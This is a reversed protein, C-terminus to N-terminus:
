GAADDDGLGLADRLREILDEVTRLEKFDAASVVESVQEGEILFVCPLAAEPLGAYAEEVQDRYTFQVRYDLGCIFRAWRRRMGGVGYTIACLDCPYTSPALTKHILDSLASWLGSDANYVFVLEGPPIEPTVEM